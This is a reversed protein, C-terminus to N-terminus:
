EMLAKTSELLEECMHIQKSDLGSVGLLPYKKNLYERSEDDMWPKIIKAVVSQVNEKKLTGMSIQDALASHLCTALRDKSKGDLAWDWATGGSDSAGIDMEIEPEVLFKFGFVKKYWKAVGYTATYQCIQLTPLYMEYPVCYYNADHVARLYKPFLKLPLKFMRRYRDLEVLILYATVAGIESSFGQIPSNTARRKAAAIVGPRGTLVRWLNRIGGIPSTVHYDTAVYNKSDNLYQTGPEFEQAMKDMIEQADAKWDREHAEKLEKNLQALQKQKEKIKEAIEKKTPKKVEETTM